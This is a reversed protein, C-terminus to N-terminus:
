ARANVFPALRAMGRVAIEPPLMVTTVGRGALARAYLATLNGNGAVAVPGRVRGASVLEHGILIGSLYSAAAGTGLEGMLGRTRVGFVHHLLGGPTDARLVGDDFADLDMPGATMMRGLLSHAKAVAFWEGTM